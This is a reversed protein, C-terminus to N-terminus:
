KKLMNMEIFIMKIVLIKYLM